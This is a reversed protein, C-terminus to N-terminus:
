RSYIDGTHCRPAINFKVPLISIRKSECMVEIEISLKNCIKNNGVADCANPTIRERAAFTKCTDRDWFANCADTCIRERTASTKCTDRDWFANCADTCIREIICSIQIVFAVPVIADKIDAIM